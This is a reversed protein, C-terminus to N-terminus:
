RHMSQNSFTEAWSSLFDAAAQFDGEDTVLFSPIPSPEPRMCAAPCGSVYLLLDPSSEPGCFSFSLQPLAATLRAVFAARDYRPNCGGCYRYCVKLM